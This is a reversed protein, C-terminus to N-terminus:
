TVHSVPRSLAYIIKTIASTNVASQLSCINFLFLVPLRFIYEQPLTSRNPRNNSKRGMGPRVMASMAIAEERTELPGEGVDTAVSRCTRQALSDSHLPQIGSREHLNLGQIGSIRSVTGDM